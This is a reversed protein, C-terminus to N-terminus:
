IKSLINSYKKMRMVRGEPQVLWTMWCLEIPRYGCERAIQEARKVFKIDDNVPTLGAKVLIENVVKKVIRDPMVTDIGGIMRLYQFTVLGVGRIKGIPDERWNEIGANEAWSRIAVKNDENLTSLYSAIEKAIIWSRKNRWIKTLENIDANALDELNRIRGNEVFELNFEEVKPVVATFYNLGISTFAADVIMLVVSGGWRETKLCRDCHEGLGTTKRMYSEVISRLLSLRAGEECVRFYQEV